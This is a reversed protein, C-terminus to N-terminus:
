ASWFVPLHRLGRTTLAMFFDLPQELDVALDPLRRYLEQLATRAELRALPAGMCLHRGHGFALHESANPRHIDFQLAGPFRKEDADASALHVLVKSGAPIPVGGLEIDRTVIRILHPAIASRRLGEEVAAEWLAPDRKVEELAEPNLTFFRVMHGILSATTERGAATLELMHALVQATSMAPTGDDNTAELMASALDDRPNARREDLLRTFFVSAEAVRRYREELEEMPMSLELEEEGAGERQRPAMLSFFDDIWVRFRPLTEPPVGLMDVIVRIGLPYAFDQMLDCRGADEFEDILEGAIARIRPESEDIRKRTFAKQANRREQTHAPPDINVFNRALIEEAVQRVHEPVRDSLEPPVPLARYAASSFGAWDGLIAAVDDYRTIVWADFAPYYFVPQAEHARQIFAHPDEVYEPSFPDFGDMSPFTGTDAKM